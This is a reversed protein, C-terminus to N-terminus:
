TGVKRAFQQVDPSWVVSRRRQGAPNYASLFADVQPLGTSWTPDDKLSKRVRGWSLFLARDITVGQRVLKVVGAPLACTDAGSCALWLQYALEAAAKLGALPPVVGYRYTISWTGPQDDDLALNQCSPWYRATPNSPDTANPKWMRTLWRWNDLRWNRDGDSDFEPVDDGNVTVSVIDTVPYGSLKARSIGGCGCLASAAEGAGWSWWGWVNGGIPYNGWWYIPNVGQAISGAWGACGGTRCPRVTQECGGTFQRGSLEFLLSSAEIAVEDFVTADSGADAGACLAVDDGTIWSVCPGQVPGASSSM